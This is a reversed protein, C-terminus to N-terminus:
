ETKAAETKPKADMIKQLATLSSNVFPYKELALRYYKEANTTDGTTLYFEGMSDYPNYGDPYLAIYKEFCEKAKENDKKDQLYYYGLVNYMSGETPFQKIYAEAAAFREEPTARTVAYYSGIMSGDPFMDHLKAWIERNTEEPNKENLLTVFLKEGATKNVASKMAKATYMKKMEGRSLNALFSLAVTFDPDLKVAARLDHYAQEMEINLFHNVGSSALAKAEASKTTWTMTQKKPTKLSVTKANQAIVAPAWFIFVCVLLKICTKLKM